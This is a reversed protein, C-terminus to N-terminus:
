RILVTGILRTGTAAFDAVAQVVAERRDVARHVCLVTAQAHKALGATGVSQRLPAGILCVLDAEARLAAVAGAVPAALLAGPGVLAPRTGVGMLRVVGGPAAHLMAATLPAGSLLDTFGPAGAPVAAGMAGPHASQAEVLLVRLGSLGAVAQLAMMALDGVGRHATLGCLLMADGASLGALMRNALSVANQTLAVDTLVAPVVPGPVPRTGAGTPAPEQRTM